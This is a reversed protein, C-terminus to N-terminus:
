LFESMEEEFRRYDEDGQKKKEEARGATAAGVGIGRERMEEMLTKKREGGGGAGEGEGGAASPAANVAALGVKALQAKQQAMKRRMAMPVFATAEKKLDRLQPAASITAGAGGAAAAASSAATAGPIAMFPSPAAPTPAATIVAGPPPGAQAQAQRGQQFARQPGKDANLPDVMHGTPPPPRAPLNPNRPGSPANTPPSPAAAPPATPFNPRAPLAHPLHPPHPPRHHPFSPPHPHSSTPRSILPRSTSSPQSGPRPPPPGPPLAIDDDDEDSDSDSSSADAAKGTPPPGAPMVIDDDEDDDDESDEEDSGEEIQPQFAALQDPTPIGMRAMAYEPKERYPMGPPPVGFPNFEPHYYISREPHKLRGNRDYLGAPEDAGGGAAADGDEGSAGAPFVFKRHEPHAEVYENKAKSIRAMEARLSALEDKDAKSLPGQQAQQTLRRIDAEIPRTDTKVTAVEKQKSRAAKNKKLEAKRQAKRHADVPNNKAM